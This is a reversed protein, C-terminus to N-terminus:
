PWHSGVADGGGGKEKKENTGSVPLHRSLFSCGEKRGGRWSKTRRSGRKSWTCDRKVREEVLNTCLRAMSNGHESV